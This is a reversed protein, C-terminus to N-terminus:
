VYPPETLTTDFGALVAAAAPRNAVMAPTIGTQRTDFVTVPAHQPPRILADFRRTERLDWGGPGDALRLLVAGVEIPEAPHGTPTTGEFDLVIWTAARAAPDTAYRDLM